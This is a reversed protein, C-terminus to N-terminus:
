CLDGFGGYFCFFQAGPLLLFGEWGNVLFLWCWVVLVLCRDIICGRGAGSQAKMNGYIHNGHGLYSWMALHLLLTKDDPLRSSLHCRWSAACRVAFCRLALRKGRPTGFANPFFFLLLQPLSCPFLYMTLTLSM